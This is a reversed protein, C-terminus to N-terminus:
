SGEVTIDVTMTNKLATIRSLVTETNRYRRGASVSFPELSSLRMMKSKLCQEIIELEWQKFRM